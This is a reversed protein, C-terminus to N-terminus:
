SNGSYACVPRNASDSEKVRMRSADLCGSQLRLSLNVLVGGAGSTIKRGDFRAKVKRQLFGHFEFTAQKCEITM